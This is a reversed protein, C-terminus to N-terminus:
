GIKPIRAVNRAQDLFVFVRKPNVDTIVSSGFPVLVVRLDPRDALIKQKAAEAPLGVVEPWSAKTSGSM